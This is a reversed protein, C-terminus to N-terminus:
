AAVEVAIADTQAVDFVTVTRTNVVREVVAGTSPDEVKVVVPAVLAIGREGKRVQRGFRQWEKYGAVESAGAQMLTMCNRPSYYHPWDQATRPGKSEAVSM